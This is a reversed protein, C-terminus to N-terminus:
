VRCFGQGGIRVCRYGTRCDAASSCTKLCISGHVGAPLTTDPVCAAGEGCRPNRLDCYGACYGGTFGRFCYRSRCQENRVCPSGVTLGETPAECSTAELDCRGGACHADDSCLALCIFPQNTAVQSCVWGDRCPRSADCTTVLFREGNDTQCRYGERPTAPDCSVLCSGRPFNGDAETACHGGEACDRDCRCPGGPPSPMGGNCTGADPAVDAATGSDGRTGATTSTDSCAGAVVAWAIAM